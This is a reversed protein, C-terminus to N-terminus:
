YVKPTYVNLITQENIIPNFYNLTKLLEFDNALSINQAMLIKQFEDNSAFKPTLIFIVNSALITSTSLEQQMKALGKENFWAFSYPKKDSLLILGTQHSLTFIHEAPHNKVDLLQLQLSNFQSNTKIGKLFPIDEIAIEMNESTTQRYPFQTIATIIQSFALLGVIAFVTSKYLTNKANDVLYYILLFVFAGYFLVNAALGNNTGLAGVFPISILGLVVLWNIKSHGSLKQLLAFFGILLYGLIIQYISGSGGGGKYYYNKFIIIILTLLGIVFVIIQLKNDASPKKKKVILQIIFTAAVIITPLLMKKVIWKVNYYYVLLVDNFNHNPDNTAKDIFYSYFMEITPYINSFGKGLFGLILMAGMALCLAQALAEIIISKISPLKKVLWVITILAMIPLLVLNTIKNFGLLVLLGGLIAVLGYRAFNNATKLLLLWLGVILSLLIASMSNYSLALPGFTFSLLHGVLLMNFLIINKSKSANSFYNKVGLYLVLSSFVGLVVRLIRIQVLSFNFAGFFRQYVILFPDAGFQFPNKAYLYGISYYSEDSIDFGYYSM